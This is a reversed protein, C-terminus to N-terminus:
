CANQLQYSARCKQAYGLDVAALGDVLASVVAYHGRTSEAMACCLAHGAGRDLADRSLRCAADAPAISAGLRFGLSLLFDSENM